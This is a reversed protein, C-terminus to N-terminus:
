LEMLQRLLWDNSIMTTCSSNAWIWNYSSPRVSQYAHQLSEELSRDYQYDIACGIALLTLKESAWLGWNHIATGCHSYKLRTCIHLAWCDQLHPPPPLPTNSSPRSPHWSLSPSSIHTHSLLPFAKHGFIESEGVFSDAHLHTFQAWKWHLSLSYPHLLLQLEVHRGELQDPLFVIAWEGSVPVVLWTNFKHFDIM